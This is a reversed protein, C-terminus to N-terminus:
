PSIGPSARIWWGGRNLMRCLTAEGGTPRGLRRELALFLLSKGSPEFVFRHIRAFPFCKPSLFDNMSVKPDV